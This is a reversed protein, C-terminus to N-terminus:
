FGSNPFREEADKKIAEKVHELTEFAGLEYDVERWPEDDKGRLISEAQLDFKGNYFPFDQIHGSDASSIHEGDYDVDIFPGYGDPYNALYCDYVDYSYIIDEAQNFEIRNLELRYLYKAM